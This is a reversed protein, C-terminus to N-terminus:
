TWCIQLRTTSARRPWWQGAEGTVEGYFPLNVAPGAVDEQAVHLWPDHLASVWLDAQFGSQKLKGEDYQFVREAIIVDGLDTDEPHGACVGCMALCRPDLAQILSVAVDTAAVGAMKTPRAAAVRLPGAHGRFTATYYPPSGDHRTWPEELGVDVELLLAAIILVDVNPDDVTSVSGTPKTSAVRADNM